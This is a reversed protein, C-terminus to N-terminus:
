KQTATELLECGRGGPHGELRDDDQVPERGPLRRAKAEANSASSELLRLDIEPQGAAQVVSSRERASLEQNRQVVIHLHLGTPQLSEDLCGIAVPSGTRHAAQHEPAVTAHLRCPPLQEAVTEGARQPVAIRGFRVLDHLRPGDIVHMGWGKIMGPSANVWVCHLIPESWFPHGHSVAEFLAGRHDIHRTPREVAVGEIGTDILRGDPTRDPRDQPAEPTVRLAPRQAM